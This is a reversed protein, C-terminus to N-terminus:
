VTDKMFDKSCLEKLTWVDCIHKTEPLRRLRRRKWSSNTIKRTRWSLWFFIWARRTMRNQIRKQNCFNHAALPMSGLSTLMDLHGLHSVYQSIMVKKKYLLGVNTLCLLKSIRSLEWAYIKMKWCEGVFPLNSGKGSFFVGREWLGSSVVESIGCSTM